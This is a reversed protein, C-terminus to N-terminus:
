KRVKTGKGGRGTLKIRNLSLKRGGYEVTNEVRSAVLWAAEIREKESLKMGKVGLAGKKKEPVEELLFRLFYGGSSQLVIYDYPGAPVALVVRDEEDTLKTAAIQRRTVDFESGHVKKVMGYATAFVIEEARVNSMSDVWLIREGDSSYQSINDIPIGKDRFKGLPIQSVKVTYMNGRDTFVCLRESTMCRIIFRSEGEATERNREYVSPDVCRMYGFRDTLVVVEIDQVTKKAM